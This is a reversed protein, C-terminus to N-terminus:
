VFHVERTGGSNDNVTTITNLHCDCSRTVAFKVEPFFSFPLCIGRIVSVMSMSTELMDMGNM